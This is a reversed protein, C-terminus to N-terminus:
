LMKLNIIEDDTLNEKMKLIYWLLFILLMKHNVTADETLKEERQILICSLIRALLMKHNFTERPESERGRKLRILIILYYAQSCVQKLFWVSIDSFGM